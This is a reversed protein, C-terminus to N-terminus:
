QRGRRGELIFAAGVIGCATAVATYVTRSVDGPVAGVVAFGGLVLACLLLIILGILVRVGPTEVEIGVLFAVVWISLAALRITLALADAGNM